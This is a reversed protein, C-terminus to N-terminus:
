FLGSDGNNLQGYDIPADKDTMSGVSRFGVRFNNNLFAQFEEEINKLAAQFQNQEQPTARRFRFRAAVWRAEIDAIQTSIEIQLPLSTYKQLRMQIYTDVLSLLNTLETDNTTNSSALTLEDHVQSLTAYTTM